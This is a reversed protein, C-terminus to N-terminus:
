PVHGGVAPPPLFGSRLNGSSTWEIPHELMVPVPEGNVRAPRFRLVGVALITPHSFSRHSARLVRINYPRGDVGVVYRVWVEGGVGADRLLRPYVTALRRMFDDANRPMPLEEVPDPDAAARVRALAASDAPTLDEGAFPDPREALPPPPPAPEDRFEWTVPLTVRVPVPRGDVTGPSFRLVSVSAVTAADFVSDAPEAVTVEAPVGDEGVVLSVVVTGRFASDPAVAPYNAELAQSLLAANVARPPTDAEALEYVRADQAAAPVALLLVPVLIIWPFPM